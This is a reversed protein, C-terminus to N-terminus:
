AGLKAQERGGQNTLRSRCHPPTRSRSMRNCTHHTSAPSPTGHPKLPAPEVWRHVLLASCTAGAVCCAGSAVAGARHQM